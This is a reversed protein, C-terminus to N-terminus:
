VYTKIHIKRFIFESNLYLVADLIRVTGEVLPKLEEEYLHKGDSHPLERSGSGVDSAKVCVLQAADSDRIHRREEAVSSTNLFSFWYGHLVVFTKFLDM